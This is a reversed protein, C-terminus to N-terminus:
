HNLGAQRSEERYLLSLVIQLEQGERNPSDAREEGEGLRERYLAIVDEMIDSPLPFADDRFSRSRNLTMVKMTFADYRGGRQDSSMISGTEDLDIAGFVHCLEHELVSALGSKSPHDKILVYAHLYDAAGFPPGQAARDPIIGIVLHCEGRPVKEVLDRLHEALTKPGPEPEWYKADKIKFAIGFRSKFGRSVDRVMKHMELDWRKSIRFEAAAVIKVEVVRYAGTFAPCSISFAPFFCIYLLLGIMVATASCCPKRGM